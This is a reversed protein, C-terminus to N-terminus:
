VTGAISIPSLTCAEEPLTKATILVLKSGELKANLAASVAFETNLIWNAEVGLALKAPRDKTLIDGSGTPVKFLILPPAQVKSKSGAVKGPLKLSAFLLIYLRLM